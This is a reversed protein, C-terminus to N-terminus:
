AASPPPFPCLAGRGTPRRGGGPCPQGSAPAAPVIVKVAKRVSTFAEGLYTLSVPFTAGLEAPFPLELSFESAEDLSDVGYNRTCSVM